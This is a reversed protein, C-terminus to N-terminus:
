QIGAVLSITYGGASWTDGVKHPYVPTCLTGPAITTALCVRGKDDLKWTGSFTTAGQSGDFTGDPKYHIKNTVGSADRTITTNGFRSAMVGGDPAGAAMAAGALCTAGCLLTAMSVLALTRM